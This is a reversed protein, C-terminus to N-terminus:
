RSRDGTGPAALPPPEDEYPQPGPSTPLGAIWTTAIEWCEGCREGERNKVGEHGEFQRSGILGVGCAVGPSLAEVGFGPVIAHWDSVVYLQNVANRVRVWRVESESRM